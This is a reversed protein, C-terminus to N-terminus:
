SFVKAVNIPYVFDMGYPLKYNLIVFNNLVKGIVGGNSNFTSFIHCRYNIQSYVVCNKCYNFM